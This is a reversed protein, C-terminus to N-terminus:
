LGRAEAWAGEILYTIAKLEISDRPLRLHANGQSAEGATIVIPRALQSALAAQKVSRSLPIEIGSPNLTSIKAFVTGHLFADEPGMADELTLSFLHAGAKAPTVIAGPLGLVYDIILNASESFATDTDAPLFPVMGRALFRQELLGTAINMIIRGGQQHHHSEVRGCLFM